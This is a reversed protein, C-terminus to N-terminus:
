AVSIRRTIVSSIIAVPKLPWPIGLTLTWLRYKGLVDHLNVLFVMLLTLQWIPFDFTRFCRVIWSVYFPSVLV